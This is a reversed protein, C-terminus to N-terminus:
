RRAHEDPPFLTSQARSALTDGWYLNRHLSASNRAEHTARHPRTSRGRILARANAVCWAVSQALLSPRAPAPQLMDRCAFAEDIGRQVTRRNDEQGYM